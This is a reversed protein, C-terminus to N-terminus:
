SASKLVSNKIDIPSPEPKKAEATQRSNETKAQEMEYLKKSTRVYEFFYHARKLEEIALVNLDKNNEKDKTYVKEYEQM